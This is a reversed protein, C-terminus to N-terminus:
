KVPVHGHTRVVFRWVKCSDELLFHLHNSGIDKSTHQKETATFWQLYVTCTCIMVVLVFNHKSGFYIVTQVGDELFQM